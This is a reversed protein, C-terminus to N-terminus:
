RLFTSDEPAAPRSLGSAELVDSLWATCELIPSDLDRGGVHQAYFPKMWAQKDDPAHIDDANKWRATPSLYFVYDEDPRRDAGFFDRVPGANATVMVEHAHRNRLWKLGTLVKGESFAQTAARYRGGCISRLGDDLAILWWVAEVAATWVEFADSERAARRVRDESARLCWWLAAAKEQNPEARWGDSWHASTRLEPHDKPVSPRILLPDRNM